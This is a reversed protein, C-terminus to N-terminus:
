LRYSITNLHLGSTGIRIDCSHRCSLHYVTNFSCGLGSHLSVSFGRLAYRFTDIKEFAVFVINDPLTARKRCQCLPM